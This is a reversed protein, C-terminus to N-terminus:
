KSRGFDLASVLCDVAQGMETTWNGDLEVHDVAHIIYGPLARDNLESMADVVSHVVAYGDRTEPVLTFQNLM